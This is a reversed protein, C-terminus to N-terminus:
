QSLKRQEFGFCDVIELAEIMGQVRGADYDASPTGRNEREIERLRQLRCYLEYFHGEIEIYEGADVAFLFDSIADDMKASTDEQEVDADDDPCTRVYYDGEAWETLEKVVGTSVKKYYKM